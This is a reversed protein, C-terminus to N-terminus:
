ALGTMDKRKGSHGPSHDDVDCVEKRIYENLFFLEM